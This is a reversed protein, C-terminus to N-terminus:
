CRSCFSAPLTLSIFLFGYKIARDTKLYQDVPDIFSVGLTRSNVEMCQSPGSGDACKRM